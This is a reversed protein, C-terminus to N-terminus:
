PNNNVAQINIVKLVGGFFRQNFKFQIGFVPYIVRQYQRRFFGVSNSALFGPIIRRRVAQSAEVPL